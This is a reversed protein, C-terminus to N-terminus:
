SWGEEASVPRQAAPVAISFAAGGSPSREAWVRGGEAALLGRTIALGLGTGATSGRAATGRVFPDFLREMDEDRLGPGEDAVTLRLGDTTAHAVVTIATGPASYKAANELLHALAASTLRPDLQLVVSEDATVDLRHHLLARGVQAVAAEVIAGPTVWQPVAEVARAEIRALDLIEQLLRALNDIETIALTAQAARERPEIADDSANTVAVRIATLPTRLDHGLAALLASTLDARQRALEAGRREELFRARELAIAMVGGIADATGPEVDAGGLVALGVARMGIRIPVLAARSGALDCTRHGGYARTRADFELTGRAAAWAEDFVRPPVSPTDIGGSHVRWGDAPSPTAVLVVPLEFRRAVHRAMATITDDEDGTLLIDRSVDFLRTVENRRAVAERERARATSSLHSAVSAVVLFVVLAVWNHPDAITFTGVPPMFFFNLALTAALACAIAATLPSVSATFLVVLLYCLAVTTPSGAGLAHLASTVIAVAAFAALTSV